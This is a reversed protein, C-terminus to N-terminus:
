STRGRSAVNAVFAGPKDRCVTIPLLDGHITFFAQMPLPLLMREADEYDAMVKV